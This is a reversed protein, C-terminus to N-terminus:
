ENFLEIMEDLSLKGLAKENQIISSALKSKKTKLMEIKEEVTDKSIFRYIFVNKYQGIRHTRNIAQEEVAPNWWPDIIFVYDAETLNLGTGGAKIQILFIHKLPDKQFQHIVKERNTTQGTLMQYGYNMKGLYDKVLNLHKVFSSFILVKHNEAVLNDINQKIEEMKGSEDQYGPEIMKPHIAIQRLKHLGRIIDIGTKQENRDFKKLISNRIASKEEEYIKGQKETMDCFIVQEMKEPLEKAVLQKTRRLVFPKILDQLSEEKERNNKKEIPIVFEKKFHSLSGLLGRNLFNIQAWLDTLSNEVPTGTLVIKYAGSLQMIAKYTKSEPNKINQSEDLVIYSFSYNKLIVADNRIVGYSAIVIDYQDFDSINKTRKMGSHAMVKLEPTFRVVEQQWNHILSKPVIIMSAKQTRQNEIEFLSLQGESVNKNSNRKLDLLLALTQITKGLGMDDALCGGFNNKQLLKFWTYGTKQYPRLLDNLPAPVEFSQTSRNNIKEFKNLDDKKGLGANSIIKFHHKAIRISNDTKAGYTFIERYQFFWNDPIVFTTKDPLMYERIHNLIHKKFNIFPIKFEGVEITIQIDFWDNEETVTPIIREKGLSYQKPLKSQDIDISEKSLLSKNKILWEISKYQIEEPQIDERLPLYLFTNKLALGQSIIFQLINSEVDKDRLIKYFKYEKENKELLIATEQPNNFDFILNKPYEYLLRFCTKGELDNEVSLVAVPKDSYTEIIFGEAQVIHNRVCESAFTSFWKEEHNKPIHIQKTSLFPVIKKSNIGEFTFLTNNIIINSPFETLIHAPQDIINLKKDGANLELNYHTGDEKKSIKFLAGGKTKCIGIEDSKNINKFKGRFFLPVMEDRLLELISSIRKDIYPRIHNDIYKKDLTSIFDKPRVNKKKGFVKYLTLDSYEDSLEIIEKTSVNLFSDYREANLKSLKSEIPMFGHDKRYNIIFLHVLSGLKPHDNIAGVIKLM